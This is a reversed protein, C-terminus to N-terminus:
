DCHPLGRARSGLLPARSSSVLGLRLGSSGPCVCGARRSRGEALKGLVGSPLVLTWPHRAGAAGLCPSRSESNFQVLVSSYPIASVTRAVTGTTANVQCGRQSFHAPAGTM